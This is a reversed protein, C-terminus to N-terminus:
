GTEKRTSKEVWDPPAGTDNFRELRAAGQVSFRLVSVGAPSVVLRQFLDLHLGLYHAIVAKLIDAHSVILATDHPHAARVREAAGVARAQAEHLSEGAPFRALSPATMLLPWIENDRLEKLLKGTWQGYQVEGWADDTTIPLDLRTALPAATEIARDLPSSYIAQIPWHALRQALAVAQQQGMENLHVGPTWGALREGVWDNAAHRVLILTTM